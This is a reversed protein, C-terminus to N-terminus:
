DGHAPPEVPAAFFIERDNLPVLAGRSFGMEEGIGGRDRGRQRALPHDGIGLLHSSPGAPFEPLVLDKDQTMTPAAEKAKLERLM